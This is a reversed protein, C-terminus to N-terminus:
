KIQFCEELNIMGVDIGLKAIEDANSVVYVSPVWESNSKTHRDFIIEDGNPYKLIINDQKNRSFKAGEMTM